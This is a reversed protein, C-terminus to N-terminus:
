WFFQGRNWIRVVSIVHQVRTFMPLLICTHLQFLGSELYLCNNEFSHSFSTGRDKLSHLLGAPLCLLTSQNFHDIGHKYYEKSWTEWIRWYSAKFITNNVLFDNTIMIQSKFWVYRSFYQNWVLLTQSYFSYNLIFKRFNYWKSLKRVM